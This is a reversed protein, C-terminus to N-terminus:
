ENATQRDMQETGGHQGAEGGEEQKLGGGKGEGKIKQGGVRYRM